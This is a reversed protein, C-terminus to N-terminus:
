GIVALIYETGPYNLVMRTSTGSVTFPFERFTRQCSTMIEPDHLMSNYGSESGEIAQKTCRTVEIPMPLLQDYFSMLPDRRCTARVTQGLDATITCYYFYTSGGITAQMYNYGELEGHYDLYMEPADARFVGKIHATATIPSSLYPRKNLMKNDASCRYLIVDM